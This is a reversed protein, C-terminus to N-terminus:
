EAVRAAKSAPKGRLLHHVNGDIAKRHAGNKRAVRDNVRRVPSLLFQAAGPAAVDSLNAGGIRFRREVPEQDRFAIARIQIEGHEEFLIVRSTRPGRRRARLSSTVTDSTAGRESFGPPQVPQTAPDAAAHWHM